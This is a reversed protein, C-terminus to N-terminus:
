PSLPHLTSGILEKSFPIPLIDKGLRARYVPLSESVRIVYNRTEDFPIHEVWDVIDIRGRRPDGNRAMWRTPRSPGANYGAAMMVVNGDFDKALEALYKSGLKANYTPDSTLRAKSYPLGLGRSVQKATGPMLQMLGRAGAYSVVVPDFESERRAIALAM